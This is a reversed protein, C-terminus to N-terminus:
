FFASNGCLLIVVHNVTNDLWIGESSTCNDQLWVRFAARNAFLLEEKM